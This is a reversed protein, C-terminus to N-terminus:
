NKLLKNILETIKKGKYEGVKIRKDLCFDSHSFKHIAVNKINKGSLKIGGHIPALLKASIEAFLDYPSYINIIQTKIKTKTHEITPCVLIIKKVLSNDLDQLAEMIVEGGLSIGLLKINYKKKHKKILRKLKKAAFFVSFQIFIGEFWNFYIVKRNKRKLQKAWKKAYDRYVPRFIRTLKYLFLIIKQIFQRKSELYKLGPVLILLDKKMIVFFCGYNLYNLM